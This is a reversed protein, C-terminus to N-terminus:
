LEVSAVYLLSVSIKGVPNLSSVAHDSNFQACVFKVFINKKFIPHYLMGSGLSINNEQM